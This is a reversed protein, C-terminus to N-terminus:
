KQEEAQKALAEIKKTIQNAKTAAYERANAPLTGSQLALSYAKLAKDLADLSELSFAMALWWRGETPQRQVLLDYAQVARVHDKTRQYATASLALLEDSSAIDVKNQDIYSVLLDPKKNLLLRAKLAQHKPKNTSVNSVSKAQIALLSDILRESEEYSGRQYASLAQEYLQVERTKSKSLVPATPKEKSPGSTENVKQIVPPKPAPKMPSIEASSAVAQSPEVSKSNASVLAKPKSVNQKPSLAKQLPVDTSAQKVQTSNSVELKPQADVDAVTEPQETIKQPVPAKAVILTETPAKVDTTNLTASQEVRPKQPVETKNAASVTVKSTESEEPVTSSAVVKESPTNNLPQAILSTSKASEYLTIYVFYGGAAALVLILLFLVPWKRSSPSKKEPASYMLGLISKDQHESKSDLDKLVDNILSM